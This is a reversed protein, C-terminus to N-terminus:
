IGPSYWRSIGAGFPIQSSLFLLVLYRMQRWTARDIETLTGSISPGTKIPNKSESQNDCWVSSFTEDNLIARHMKWNSQAMKLL